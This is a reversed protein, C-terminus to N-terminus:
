WFKSMSLSGSAVFGLVIRSLAKGDDSVDPESGGAGRTSGKKPSYCGGRGCLEVRQFPPGIYHVCSGSARAQEQTGGKKEGMRRVGASHV